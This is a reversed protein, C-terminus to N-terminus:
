IKGQCFAGLQQLIVCEHKISDYRYSISSNENSVECGCVDNLCILNNTCQSDTKCTQGADLLCKEGKNATEQSNCWLGSNYNSGCGRVFYHDFFESNRSQCSRGKQLHFILPLIDAQVFSILLFPIIFSTNLKIM